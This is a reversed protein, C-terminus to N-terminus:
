NPLLGEWYAINKGINRIYLTVLLKTLLFMINNKLYYDGAEVCVVNDTLEEKFVDALYLFVDDVDLSLLLWIEDSHDESWDRYHEEVYKEIEIDNKNQIANNVVLLRTDEPLNVWWDEVDSLFQVDCGCLKRLHNSKLNEEKLVFDMIKLNM